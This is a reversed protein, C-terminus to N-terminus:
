GANICVSIKKQFAIVTPQQKITHLVFQSHGIWAMKTVMVEKDQGSKVTITSQAYFVLNTVERVKKNQSM